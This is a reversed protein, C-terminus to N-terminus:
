PVKSTVEIVCSDKLLAPLQRHDGWGKGVFKRLAVRMRVMILSHPVITDVLTDPIPKIDWRSKQKPGIQRMPQIVYHLRLSGTFLEQFYGFSLIAAKTEDDFIFSNASPPAWLAVQNRNLLTISFSRTSAVVDLTMNKLIRECAPNPKENNQGRADRGMSLLNFLLGFFVVMRMASGPMIM